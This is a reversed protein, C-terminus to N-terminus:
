NMFKKRCGDHYHADAAHLDSVAGELRVQVEQAWKDNRQRCIEMVTEKFTKTTGRDATRCLYSRRWRSSNTKSPTLACAEGCYFCQQKFDFNSDSRRARKLPPRSSSSSRSDIGLKKLHHNILGHALYPFM